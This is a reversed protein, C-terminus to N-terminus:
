PNPVWRGARRYPADVDVRYLEVLEDPEPDRLPRAGNVLIDASWSRHKADLLFAEARIQGLRQENSLQPGPNGQCTPCVSVGQAGDRVVRRNQCEPCPWVGAAQRLRTPSIQADLSSLWNSLSETLAVVGPEALVERAGPGNGARTLGIAEALRAAAVQDIGDPQDFWSPQAYRDDMRGALARLWDRVRDRPEIDALGICASPGIWTGGPQNARDLDFALVYLTRALGTDRHQDPANALEEALLFYREPDSPDLAELRQEIPVGPASLALAYQLVVMACAAIM